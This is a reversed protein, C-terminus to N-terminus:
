RNGFFRQTFAAIFSIEIFLGFVAEAAALQTILDELSLGGPFFGRGHFSTVSFVLAGQPTLAHSEGPGLVFFVAAFGIIMAGYAIFSRIPREGYGAILNLLWSFAWAFYRHEKFAAKRELKQERLRYKAAEKLMGQQRLALSLGRYARAAKHVAIIRAKGSNKAIDKEDGLTKADSWSVRTLLAGNWVVDSLKTNADIKAGRLSTAPDMIAQALNAGRLNADWLRTTMLNVARLDAGSLDAQALDAGSLNARYLKVNKLSVKYLDAGRLDARRKGRTDHEGSWDRTLMIWQLEMISGIKVDQYPPNGIATNRTFQQELETQRQITIEAPISPAAPDDLM